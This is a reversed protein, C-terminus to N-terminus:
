TGDSPSTELSIKLCGQGRFTGVMIIESNLKVAAYASRVLNITGDRPGEELKLATSDWTSAVHSNTVKSGGLILISDRLPIVKSTAFYGLETGEKVNSWTVVNNLGFHLVNLRDCPLEGRNTWGGFCYFDDGSMWSGHEWREAPRKGKVVVDVWRDLRLDLLHVDNQKVHGVKGGFFLIQKRREHLHMSCGLRPSPGIGKLECLEWEELNLDFRSVGGRRSEHWAEDGLWYLWEDYLATSVRYCSPGECRLWRWENKVTDLVPVITCNKGKSYYKGMSGALYIYHGVVVASCFYWSSRTIGLRLKLDSYKVPQLPTVETANLEM